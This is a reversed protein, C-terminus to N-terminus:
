IVLFRVFLRNKSFIMSYKCCRHAKGMDGCHRSRSKLCLLGLDLDLRSNPTVLSLRSRSKLFRTKLCTEFCVGRSCGYSVIPKSESTLISEANRSAFVFNHM